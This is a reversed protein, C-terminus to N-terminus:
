LARSAFLKQVGANKLDHVMGGTLTDTLAHMDAAVSKRHGEFFTSSGVLKADMATVPDPARDYFNHREAVRMADNVLGRKKVAAAEIFEDQLKKSAEALRLGEPTGKSSEDARDLMQELADQVEKRSVRGGAGRVIRGVCDDRENAM